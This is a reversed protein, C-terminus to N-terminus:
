VLVLICIKCYKCITKTAEKTIKCNHIKSRKLGEGLVVGVGGLVVGGDEVYDICLFIFPLYISKALSIAECVKFIIDNFINVIKLFNIKINLVLM